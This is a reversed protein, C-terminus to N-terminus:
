SSKEEINTPVNLIEGVGGRRGVKLNRSQKVECM